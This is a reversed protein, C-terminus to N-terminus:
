SGGVTFAYAGFKPGVRTSLEWRVDYTGPASEPLVITAVDTEGSEAFTGTGSFVTSGDRLITVTISQAGLARPSRVVLEPPLAALTSGMGPTAEAVFFSFNGTNIHGDVASLIRYNVKHEGIQRPRAEVTVIAGQSELALSGAVDVREEAPGYVEFTTFNREVRESLWTRVTLTGAPAGNDSPLFVVGGNGPDTRIPDAHAGVLLPFLLLAAAALALAAVMRRSSCTRDIPEM